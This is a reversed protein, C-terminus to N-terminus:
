FVISATEVAAAIVFMPFAVAFYKRVAHLVKMGLPDAERRRVRHLFSVGLWMGYSAAFLFAPIEFVGHPMVQLAAKWYGVAAASQLYLVGLLFGNTAVSLVPLIGFLVGFLVMFLTEITNNVLILLFLEGGARNQLPEMMELFGEAIRRRFPPPSLIGALIGAAFLAALYGLYPRVAPEPLLSSFRFRSIM